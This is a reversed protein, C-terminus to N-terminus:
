NQFNPTNWYITCILTIVTTNLIFVIEIRLKYIAVLKTKEDFNKKENTKFHKRIKIKYFFIKENNYYLAFIYLNRIM